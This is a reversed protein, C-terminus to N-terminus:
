LNKVAFKKKFKVNSKCWTIGVGVVLLLVANFYALGLWSTKWTNNEGKM